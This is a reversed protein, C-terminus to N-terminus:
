PISADLATFPSGLGLICGGGACFAAQFYFPMGEVGAPLPPVAAFLKLEGGADLPALPVIALPQGLM